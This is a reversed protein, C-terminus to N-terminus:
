FALRHLAQVIWIMGETDMSCYKELEQKVRVRESESVEGFHVRLFERSAASGDQIALKDYGRGTLVPLVAKMSASGGQGSAYYRFSRFPKLLDIFRAQLGNLWNQYATHLQCCERLRAQEFQANYVVISGAEPLWECLKQLFKLRPDAQGDALFM